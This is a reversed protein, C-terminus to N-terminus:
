RNLTEITQKLQEKVHALKEVQSNVRERIAEKFGAVADAWEDQGLNDLMAYATERGRGFAQSTPKPPSSM